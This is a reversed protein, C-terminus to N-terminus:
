ECYGGMSCDESANFQHDMLADHLLDYQYGGKTTKSWEVKLGIGHKEFNYTPAIWKPNLRKVTITENKEIAIDPDILEDVYIYKPETLGQEKCLQAELGPIDSAQFFTSARSPIVMAVLREWEQIRKVEEPYREAIFRIEAKRAFICPFCGVRDVGKAYLPNPRIGRKKLYAFVDNKSWDIIPRYSIIEVGKIKTREFRKALRRRQSEDRRVGTWNIIRHGSDALPKYIQQTIPEIKLMDTCFRRGASPFGGRLLCADLFPVGTPKLYELAEDIYKQPVGKKAWKEPLRAAKERVKESLDAKVWEIEPGGVKGALERIYDYTEPAENGVDAFTARFPKGHEVALSYTATSDKGGSVSVCTVPM